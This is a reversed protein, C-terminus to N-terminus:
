APGGAGGRRPSGSGRARRRGVRLRGLGPGPLAPGSGLAAGAVYTRGPRAPGLQSCCHTRALARLEGAAACPAAAPGGRPPSVRISPAPGPGCRRGRRGPSARQGTSSPDGCRQSDRRATSGSRSVPQVQWPCPQFYATRSCTYRNTHRDETQHGRSKM